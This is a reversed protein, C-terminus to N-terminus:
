VFIDESLAVMWYTPSKYGDKQALVDLYVTNLNEIYLDRKESEPLKREDLTKIYRKCKNCVDVRFASKETSSDEDIFFYRLSNHDENGCFPCMIRKHHWETGCFNCRLIRKGDDRRLKEIAPYSGCVPCNGKLWNEEDVKQKLKGAYLELLAQSLNLGVFLLSDIGIQYQSSLSKLSQLDKSLVSRVLESLNIKEKNALFNRIEERSFVEHKELLPLFDRLFEDLFKGEIKLKQINLLPKNEEVRKQIEEDSIRIDDQHGIRFASRAEAIKQCLDFYLKSEAPITM